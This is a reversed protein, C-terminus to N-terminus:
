NAHSSGETAGNGTLFYVTHLQMAAAAAIVREKTVSMLAILEEEPSNTTGAAIQTLYWGELAGMSDGVSLFGTQLSLKTNLLDEDSFDGKKMAELQLLIETEAAEKKDSEVGSNVMMIGNGREYRASCYYCLSLRERVNLFLKSFPTGGYIASMMRAAFLGVQDTYPMYFGLSLKSQSIDMEETVRRIGGGTPTYIQKSQPTFSRPLSSFRETFIDKAAAVDGSGVFMIEIAANKLLAQYAQYASKETVTKVTEVSGYPRLGVPQGEFMTSVCRIQAYMRKDNIESLVADELNQRELATYNKSFGDGELLPELVLDCLLTSLESVMKEGGLAFRDDLGKLSINMIQTAGFKTVDGFLQAGYLLALKRNLATFDPCNKNGMRLIFPVVARASAEAAELPLMFSVSLRNGTFKKDNVQSFYIGDGLKERVLTTQM